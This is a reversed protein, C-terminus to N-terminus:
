TAAPDHKIAGEGLINGNSLIMSTAHTHGVRIEHAIQALLVADLADTCQALKEKLCRSEISVDCLAAYRQRALENIKSQIADSDVEDQRLREDIDNQLRITALSIQTDESTIGDLYDPTAQLLRQLSLFDKILSADTMSLAIHTHHRKCYWREAGSNKQRRQVGAGCIECVLKSKLM